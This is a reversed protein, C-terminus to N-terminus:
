STSYFSCSHLKHFLHLSSCLSSCGKHHQQQATQDSWCKRTLNHPTNSEHNQNIENILLRNQDLIKQVQVFSKQFSQVMKGNLQVGGNGVGACREGEM